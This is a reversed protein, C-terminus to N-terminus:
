SGSTTAKHLVQPRTCYSLPNSQTAIEIGKGMRMVEQKAYVPLGPTNVTEIWDAPGFATQFLGPVGVPFFQCESAPVFAVGDITGRYEEIVVGAFEFGSRPDSRLFKGEQWRAYGAKILPHSIYADFWTAGAFGHIHDYTANGLAVEIARKVTLLKAPVETADTGLVFDTAGRTLGFEDFMNLLETSGDADKVIGQVAGIRHYELTAAHLGRMQELRDNVIKELTQMETGSGFARVGQIADALISDDHPIHPIEFYRGKRKPAKGLSGPAGRTKTPLLAIIGELFELWINTTTVSKEEFLGMEQIRRPMYPAQIISDTLNTMSFADGTFVNLEM